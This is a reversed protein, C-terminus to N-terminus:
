GLQKATLTCTGAHSFTALGDKTVTCVGTTSSTFTVALGSTATASLQVPTNSVTQQPVTPFLIIQAARTVTFSRTIPAAAAYVANGAQTAEISCTGGALLTVESGVSCITPTLSTLTVPLGSTATATIVFPPTGYVRNPQAPFKITQTKLTASMVTFSQNVPTAAAYTANGAQTAQITCLGAAVLSVINGSM